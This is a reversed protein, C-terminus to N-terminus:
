KRWLYIFSSIKDEIIEVYQSDGNEYKQFYAGAIADAAQLCPDNKSDVHQSYIRDLPIVNGVRYSLYSAKALLYKNFDQIRKKSLSKDFIITIKQKALLRPLLASILHHVLLWNYLIKLDKKLDKKVHKKEVVVVGLELDSQYIEELVAKRCYNNMRSFKLENRLFSYRGRRHLKKLLRRMKIRLGPYPEKSVIYAIIFFRTSKKSFGLDGSEDVYVKL